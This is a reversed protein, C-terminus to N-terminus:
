HHLAWRAARTAVEESRVTSASQVAGGGVCSPLLPDSAPAVVEESKRGRGLTSFLIERGRTGRESDGGGTCIRQKQKKM